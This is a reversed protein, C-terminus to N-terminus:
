LWPKDYLVAAKITGVQERLLRDCFFASIYVRTEPHMWISVM